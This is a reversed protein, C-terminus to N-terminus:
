AVHAPPQLALRNYVEEFAALAADDFLVFFINELCTRSKLHELVEGILIKASEETSLGGAGAGLAPFALSKLTKEEARLLTNHTALRISEATAAEGPRIVAAHVVYLAKLAGATTVVTEGLAIRGASECEEQIRSGGKRLIAGAVGAGSKLDTNAPSAIADVAMETIDGKV